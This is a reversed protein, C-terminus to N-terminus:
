SQSKTTRKPSRSSISSLLIPLASSSRWRKESTRFNLNRSKWRRRYRKMKRKCNNLRLASKKSATRYHFNTKKWRTLKQFYSLIRLNWRGKKRKSSNKSRTSTKITKRSSLICRRKKWYIKPLNQDQTKKSWSWPCARLLNM